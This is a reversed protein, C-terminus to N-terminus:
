QVLLITCSNKHTPERADTEAAGTRSGVLREVTPLETFGESALFHGGGPVVEVPAGLSAAFRDTAAAPVFPDDDSRVVRVSGLLPSVQATVAGPDEGLFGDLSPLAPLREAFGSVLVAGDVRIGIAAIARLATICGLSHAVVLLRGTGRSPALADAVSSRWATAEPAMSSPLEVRTEAIGLVEAERALWPFWHARVSARYGHVIVLRTSM